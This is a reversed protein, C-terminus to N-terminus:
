EDRPEAATSIMWSLIAALASFAVPLAIVVWLPMSKEFMERFEWVTM